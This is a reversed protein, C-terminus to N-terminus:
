PDTVGCVVGQFLEFRLLLMNAKPGAEFRTHRCCTVPNEEPESLMGYGIESLM